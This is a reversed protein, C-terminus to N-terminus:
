TTQSFKALKTVDAVKQFVFHELNKMISETLLSRCQYRLMLFEILNNVSIFSFTNSPICVLVISEVRAMELERTGKTCNWSKGASSFVLLKIPGIRGFFVDSGSLGKCCCVVHVSAKYFRETPQM